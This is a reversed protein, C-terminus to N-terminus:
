GAPSIEFDVAPCGAPSAASSEFDYGLIAIDEAYVDGIKRILDDSYYSRYDRPKESTRNLALLHTSSSTRVRRRVYEYHHELQEYRGIFDIAPESDQLCIFTTQPVFHIMTRVNRRTVWKRAFEDFSNFGSLHKSAWAKDRANMGGARLFEFASVLRDWPNRVFTFKFYEELETKTFFYRYHLMTYHSTTGGFLSTSVSTGAAKPIHVFICKSEHFDLLPCDHIRHASGKRGARGYKFPGVIRLLKRRLHYPIELHM